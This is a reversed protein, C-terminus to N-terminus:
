LRTAIGRGSMLVILLTHSLEEACPSSEVLYQAWPVGTDHGLLLARLVQIWDESVVEDLHTIFFGISLEQLLRDDLWNGLKNGFFHSHLCM